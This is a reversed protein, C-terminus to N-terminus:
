KNNNNYINLSVQFILDEEEKKLKHVEEEVEKDDADKEERPANVDPDAQISADV